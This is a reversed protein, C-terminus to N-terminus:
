MPRKVFWQIRGNMDDIFGMVLYQEAPEATNVERKGHL